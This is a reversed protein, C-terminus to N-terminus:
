WKPFLRILIMGAVFAFFLGLSAVIYFKWGIAAGRKYGSMKKGVVGMSTASNELADSADNLLSTDTALSERFRLTNAKLTSVFSLIESSIADQTNQQLLVKDEDTLKSSAASENFPKFTYSGPISFREQEREKEYEDDRDKEDYDEEEEEEESGKEGDAEDGEKLKREKARQKAEQEALKAAEAAAKKQELLAAEEREELERDRVRLRLDMAKAGLSTLRTNHLHVPTPKSTTPVRSSTTTPKPTPNSTSTSSAPPSSTATSQEPQSSKERSTSTHPLAPVVTNGAKDVKMADMITPRALELNTALKLVELKQIYHNTDLLSRTSDTTSDSQTSQKNEKQNNDNLGESNTLGSDHSNHSKSSENVGAKKPDQVFENSTETYERDLFELLAQSQRLLYFDSDTQAM